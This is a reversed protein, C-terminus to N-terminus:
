NTQLESQYDDLPMTIYRGDDNVGIVIEILGNIEVMDGAKLSSVESSSNRQESPTYNSYVTIKEGDIGTFIESKPFSACVSVSGLIAFVGAVAIIFVKKRM